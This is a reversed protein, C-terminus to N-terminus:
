ENRVFELAKLQTFDPILNTTYNIRWFGNDMKDLQFTDREPSLNVGTIMRCMLEDGQGIFDLGCHAADAVRHIVIADLHALDSIVSETYFMKWTGDRQLDLYLSAPANPNPNVKISSLILEKDLGVLKISSKLQVQKKKAM